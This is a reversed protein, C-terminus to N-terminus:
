PISRGLSGMDIPKPEQAQQADLQAQLQQGMAIIDQTDQTREAARQRHGSSQVRRPLPQEWRRGEVWKRFGPCFQPQDGADDFAQAWDLAAKAAGVMDGNFDHNVMHRFAEWADTKSDGIAARPWRDWVQEFTAGIRTTPDHAPVGVPTRTPIPSPPSQSQTPDPRTSSGGTSSGLTSRVEASREPRVRQKREARVRAMRERAASREALVDARKPQYDIWDKFEFVAEDETLWLGASVLERAMDLDGGLRRVQALKIRGDTLQKACWSGALTWLGVTALDLEVVKPHDYFGDDVKFWSM